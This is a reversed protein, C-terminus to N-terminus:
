IANCIFLDLHTDTHTRTDSLKIDNKSSCYELTMLAFMLAQAFYFDWENKFNNNSVITYVICVANCIVWYMQMSSFTIQLIQETVYKKSSITM